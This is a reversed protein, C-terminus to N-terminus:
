DSTVSAAGRLRPPRLVVALLLSGIALVALKGYLDHYGSAGNGARHARDMLRAFYGPVLFGSLGWATYMLGYNAGVSRTGFYDATLVPMVALYGGYSFTALCLGIIVSWFGDATRLLGACAICSIAATAALTWRCGIRDSVSGWFLRGIGSFLGMLGLASSASILAAAAPVKERFTQTSQGIVALGASVGLFFTLWLVCFQWTRVMSKPAFHLASVRGKPPVWGAPAWGPPPVRYLQAAGLVCVLFYVALLGFTRPITVAYRASDRGVLYEVIPSYLLPAMGAGMVAFGVVSGRREPFWKLLNAIPPVYGFGVGLGGLIGYGIILGVLHHGFLASTMCGLGLLIGSFSTVMRPGRHDQWYGAVIMGIALAFLSYRYPAITQAESWGHLQALPARIISWSYLIGLVLQMFMAVVAQFARNPMPVSQEAPNCLAAAQSEMLDQFPMAVPCASRISIMQRLTRIVGSPVAEMEQSLDSNALPM